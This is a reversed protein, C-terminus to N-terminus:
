SYYCVGAILYDVIPLNAMSVILKKDKTYHIRDFNVLPKLIVISKNVNEVFLTTVKNSWLAVITNITVINEVPLEYCGVFKQSRIFKSSKIFFYELSMIIEFYVDIMEMANVVRCFDTETPIAHSNINASRNEPTNIVNNIFIKQLELWSHYDDDIEDFEIKDVQYKANSMIEDSYAISVAKSVSIQTPYIRYYDGSLYFIFEFDKSLQVNVLENFKDIPINLDINMTIYNYIENILTSLPLEIMSTGYGLIQANNM